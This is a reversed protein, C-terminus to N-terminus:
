PAPSDLDAALAAGAAVLAPLDGALRGLLDEVERQVQGTATTLRSGRWPHGDIPWVPALQRALARVLETLEEIRQPTWDGYGPMQCAVPPVDKLLLIRGMARYPTLAAPGYPEHLAAVYANLREKLATLKAPLGQDAGAGGRGKDMVRGLEATLTRRNAKTSHLELVFDGLGVRDLRSKVVDLAAMKESVFLVSKREALCEAIINAITQSKGTGPPGDIVLSQGTKAYLVAEQQSSDADLVQYVQAPDLRRDLDAADPPDAAPPLAGGDGCLARILPNADVRSGEPWRRGDLDVYMLYKTFSFLGLVMDRSVAWGPQGAVAREVQRLYDEVDFGDWDEPAPPMAIRLDQLKRVLCPNVAPEDDLAGLRFRSRASSRELAAPILVLPARFVRDGHTAPQTWELFGVALFLVNVGREQLASVAAQYIRLLNTQLNESSLATQLNGDRYRVPLGEDRAAQAPEIEPLTFVEDYEAEISPGRAEDDGDTDEPPAQGSAGATRGDVLEHEERALFGLKKGDALLLRWIEAPLEDVIPVTQRRTPRFNLLRNRMTLDLLRQRAKELQAPVPDDAM